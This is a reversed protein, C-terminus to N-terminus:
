SLAPLLRRIREALAEDTAFLVGRHHMFTSDARNLDLADGHMDTAVAGLEHFVCATAAFDWLSGGGSPGPFKFYCAPGNALVGYANMVAGRTEHFRVGDLGLQNAIQGVSDVLEAHDDRAAFSRDAFVSLEHGAGGVGWPEGNRWVGAGRVAHVLNAEIPDYIVGIHPVGSRDVLAISVAYGPLGEIFPLTGDVPDVCWFYDAALRGGDDVREETLLALEFRALTPTLHGVIIAESQRDIETVVQSALSSGTSKHEVTGPRSEAIMQAAETAARTAVDALYTLDPTTLKM